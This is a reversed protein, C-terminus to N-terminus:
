WCGVSSCRRAEACGTATSPLSIGRHEGAARVTCSGWQRLGAMQWGRITAFDRCFVDGEDCKLLLLRQSGAVLTGLVVDGHMTVEPKPVLLSLAPNSLSGAPAPCCSLVLYLHDSGSPVKVCLPQCAAPWLGSSGNWAAPPWSQLFLSWATKPVQARHSEMRMGGSLLHFGGAMCSRAPLLGGARQSGMWVQAASHLCPVPQEQM